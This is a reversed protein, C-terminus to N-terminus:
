RQPKREKVQHRQSRAAAPARSPLLFLAVALAQPAAPHHHPHAPLAAPGLHGM